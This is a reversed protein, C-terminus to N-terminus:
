VGYGSDPVNLNSLLPYGRSSASMSLAPADTDANLAQEEIENYSTQAETTDFGKAQLFALKLKATILENDFRVIDSDDLIQDITVTTGTPTLHQVWGRSNYEIRLQQASSPSSFLELQQGRTRYAVSITSGGLNRAVLTSWQANTAPGLMPLRNTTNWATLDIFSDWDAPLDYLTQSPVTTLDWVSQLSTWRLTGTPKVLRRGCWTLLAVMQQATEDDASATAAQPVPLGLQGLVDKIVALASPWKQIGATAM